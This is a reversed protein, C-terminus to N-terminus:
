NYHLIGLEKDVERKYRKYRTKPFFWSNLLEKKKAIIEARRADSLNQKATNISRVANFVDAGTALAVDIDKGNM